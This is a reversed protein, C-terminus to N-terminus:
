VDNDECAVLAFAGVDPQNEIAALQFREDLAAATAPCLLIRSVATRTLSEIKEARQVVEGIVSYIRRGSRSGAMGAFVRGSAIGIGNDVTFMGAAARRENLDALRARMRWAALVARKAPIEGNEQYFVAVVADGVLREVFGGCSTVAAEMETFYDNLLSVVLQPDTKESLSTFGRIDSALMSVNELKPEESITRQGLQQYLDESVFRRMKERQQLGTSMRNFSDALLAFEDTRAIDVRTQLNGETIKRAAKEFGKVPVVFLVALVDAFLFLSLMVVAFMLPPFSRIMLYLLLDPNSYSVGGVIIPQGNDFHYHELCVSGNESSSKFGSSRRALAVDLLRKLRSDPNIHKPWWSLITDDIRRQGIVFNHRALHTTESYIEPAFSEPSILMYGSNAVNTMALARVPYAPDTADPVLFYIMRAFNDVKKIDASEIAENQMIYHEYYERRLTDIFGDAFVLNEMLKRNKPSNRDLVGLNDLYKVALLNDINSVAIRLQDRDKFMRAVGDSRFFILEIWSGPNVVEHSHMNMIVKESKGVLNALRHKIKLTHLILQLKQDYFYSRTRYMFSDAEAKLEHKELSRASDFLGLCFYGLLAYPLLLVLSMVALMRLRLRMFAPFGFLVFHTSLLFVALAALRNIDAIQQLRRRYSRTIERLSLSVGLYRPLDYSGGNILNYATLETPLISVLRLEDDRACLLNVPQTPEKTLWRSVRQSSPKLAADVIDAVKLGASAFIVFYGGYVKKGEGLTRYYCYLYRSAFRQCGMEYCIGQRNPVFSMDSFYNYFLAQMATTLGQHIRTAIALTKFFRDLAEPRNQMVGDPLETDVVHVALTADIIQRDEVTLHALQPGYWSWIDNCDVGIAVQLLPELGTKEKYFSRLQANTSATILQPDVNKPFVPKDTTESVLGIHTDGAKALNEIYQRPVLADKFANVEDSLRARADALESNYKAVVLATLDRSVFLLPLFVLVAFTVAILLRLTRDNISGTTM